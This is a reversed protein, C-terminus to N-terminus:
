RGELCKTDGPMCDEAREAFMDQLQTYSDTVNYHGSPGRVIVHKNKFSFVDENLNIIASFRLVLEGSSEQGNSSETITIGNEGEPILRCTSESETWAVEGYSKEEGSYSVCSSEFHPVGSIAGSMDMYEDDYWDEFRPTRWVLVVDQENYEITDYGFIKKTASEDGSDEDKENKDAYEEDKQGDDDGDEEQDASPNCGEEGILWYAYINNEEDAFFTGDLNNEVICYAPIEQDYKDVYRGYDYSLYPMSKKFADLVNYDYFPAVLADAQAELTFTSEMLNVNLSSLKIEDGNTPMMASLINFTRSLMKKNTSIKELGSAQNQITLFESLGTYNKLLSSMKNLTDDNGGSILGQGGAISGFIIAMVISGAAIVVSIFFVLNRIKLAKITDAKIDPVLNIERAM